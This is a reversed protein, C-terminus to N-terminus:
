DDIVRARAVLRVPRLVHTSAFTGKGAIRLSEILTLKGCPPSIPGKTGTLRLAGGLAAHAPRARASSCFKPRRIDLLRSESGPLGRRQWLRLRRPRFGPYGRCDPVNWQVPQISERRKGRRHFYDM